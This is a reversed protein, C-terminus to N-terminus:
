YFKICSTKSARGIRVTRGHTERNKQWKERDRSLAGLRVPKPFLNLQQIFLFYKRPIITGYLSLSIFFVCCKSRKQVTSHNKNTNLLKDNKEADTRWKLLPTSGQRRRSNIPGRIWASNGTWRPCAIAITDVHRFSTQDPFVYFTVIKQLIEMIKKM